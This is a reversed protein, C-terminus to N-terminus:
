SDSLERFTELRDFTLMDCQKCQTYTFTYEPSFKSVLETYIHQFNASFEVFPCPLHLANCVYRFDEMEPYNQSTNTPWLPCFLAHFIAALFATKKWLSAQLLGSFIGPNVMIAM